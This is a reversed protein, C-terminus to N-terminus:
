MGLAKGDVVQAAPPAKPEKIQNYESFTLSETGSPGPTDLRIPRANTADVWLTRHDGALGICAIGGITRTGIKRGWGSNDLGSLFAPKSALGAMGMDRFSKDTVAVKIWKDRTLQILLDALKKPKVSRRWFADSFQLYATRGIVLFKVGAGNFIITGASATRALSVDLKIPTGDDM